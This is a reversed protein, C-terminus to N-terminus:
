GVGAAAPRLSRIWVFDPAEEEKFRRWSELLQYLKPRRQEWPPCERWGVEPEEYHKAAEPCDYWWCANWLCQFLGTPHEGLFRLDRRIAEGLLRLIRRAPYTEPLFEIARAFDIALQLVMGEETKRELFPLASLIRVVDGWKGQAVSERAYYRLIYRRKEPSMQALNQALTQLMDM